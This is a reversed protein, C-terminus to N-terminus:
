RRPPGGFGAVCVAVLGLSRANELLFQWGPYLAVGRLVVGLSLTMVVLLAM